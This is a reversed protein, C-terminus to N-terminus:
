VTGLALNLTASSLQNLWSAVQEPTSAQNNELWWMIVGISAQSIYSVSLELPPRHPNAKAGQESLRQRFQTEIFQRFNQACFVPDGKPGLMVRYFNAHQQVHQLIGILWFPPQDPPQESRALQWAEREQAPTLAYLEEMYEKLLAYKDLYHRYFTSRNVMAREVIDQVTINAFGKEITVDLLAQQLLKRTRRVRLDDKKQAM